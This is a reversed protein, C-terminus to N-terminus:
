SIREALRLEVICLAVSKIEESSSTVEDQSMGKRWSCLMCWPTKGQAKDIVRNEVSECHHMMAETHSENKWLLQISQLHVEQMTTCEYCQIIPPFFSLSFCLSWCTIWYNIRPACAAYQLQDGYEEDDTTSYLLHLM